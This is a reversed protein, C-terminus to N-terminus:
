FQHELPVCVTYVQWCVTYVHCLISRYEGCCAYPAYASVYDKNPWHVLTYYLKGM